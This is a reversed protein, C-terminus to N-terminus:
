SQGHKKQIIIELLVEKLAQLYSFSEKQTPEIYTYEGFDNFTDVRINKERGIAYKIRESFSTTDRNIPFQPGGWSYSNDFGPIITPVFIKGNSESYEKWIDFHIFYYRHYNEVYEKKDLSNTMFGVWSTLADVSSLQKHAFLIQIYEDSPKHPIRPIIDDIFFPEFSCINEMIKKAEKFADGEHFFAMGDYIFIAPKSNIRFFSPHIAFYSFTAISQLFLKKHPEYSLDISWEPLGEITGRVYQPSPGVMGGILMDKNLMSRIVDTKYTDMWFVNIGHGNAWDVHKWQVIDDSADYLGLLPKDPLHYKGVIEGMDWSLYVASVVIGSEYLAWGLNEFERIYSTKIEETKVNGAVDKVESKIYYERGGKLDKFDVEFMERELGKPNLKVVRTEEPPFVLPYDKERMGYKTIFYEYEVPILRVEVEKLTNLPSIVELSVSLDYIKDNVVKTPNYDFNKILPFYPLVKQLKEQTVKLDELVRLSSSEFSVREDGLIARYRQITSELRRRAEEMRERYLSIASTSEKELADMERITSGLRNVEGIVADYRNRWSNVEGNLRSIESRSVNVQESLKEVMERASNYENMWYSVESRFRRELSPVHYLREYLEAGAAGLGLGALFKLFGRRGRGRM